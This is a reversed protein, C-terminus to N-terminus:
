ILENRAHQAADVFIASNNIRSLLFKVYANRHEESTDFVGTLWEDPILNVISTILEPSLVSRFESDVQSLESAQMLLVHDKILIFPRIAQEEWNQWSHHFYLSAGHDILWLEKHWLLM